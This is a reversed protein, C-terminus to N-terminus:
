RIRLDALVSQNSELSITDNPKNLPLREFEAFIIDGTKFTFFGSLKELLLKSTETILKSSLNYKHNATGTQITLVSNQVSDTQQLGLPIITSQDLSIRITQASEGVIGKAPIGYLILGPTFSTIYRHAFEQQVRKAPKDLRFAIGASVVTGDLFDPLYYDNFCDRTLTNDTRFHFNDGTFDSVIINVTISQKGITNELKDISTKHGAHIGREHDM